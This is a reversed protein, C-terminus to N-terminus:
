AFQDCPGCGERIWYFYSGHWTPGGLISPDQHLTRVFHPKSFFSTAFWKLIIAKLVGHTIHFPFFTFCQFFEGPRYTDLISSSFLVSSVESLIFLHLWLLFLVWNHIHSTNPSFSSTTFFLMAYSGPVNPGHILTFETWNLQETRDSEKCYMSQLTGPKGTCWWGRSSLWVWTCRTLSAM